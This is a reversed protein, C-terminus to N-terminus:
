LEFRLIKNLEQSLVDTIHEAILKGAEANADRPNGIRTNCSYEDWNRPTWLPTTTKTKAYLDNDDLSLNEMHVYTSGIGFFHLMLSTETFGAHDDIEPANEITKMFSRDAIDLYNCVYIDVDFELELDRVVTKFNNGNHGNIIVIKTIYQRNLSAIIDRLLMKQTDVNMHICFKKDFQGINQSGFPIAPLIMFHEPHATKKISADAVETALITDTCYSLQEGHPECAGWPVVAIQHLGDGSIDKWTCDEIRTKHTM